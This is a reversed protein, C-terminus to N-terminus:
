PEPRDHGEDGTVGGEPLGAAYGESQLKRLAGVARSAQRESPTRGVPDAAVRLVGVETPTLLARETGWDLASAWFEPGAKVVAIQAEVSNLERQERRASRAADRRDVSSLLDDLFPQPWAIVLESVRSWCAQKKAWETVNSVGEPPAILVEHVSEAAAVLAPAMAPPLAQRRWIDQFDVAKGMAGVDHATKAIAHAVINARYGGQYWPQETVLRETARFVIAKAVSERYWAENFDDPATKWRQGIRRAFAAFNKQAGLSVEHPREEWVAVFKALDTKTFLQRRPNELDFKKRQAQTLGGRADAYQGRAREYFWKSERFTGDPSPAYIRRSFEEM